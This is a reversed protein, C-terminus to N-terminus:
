GISYALNFIPLYIMWVLMGIILGVVILLVPQFFSAVILIFRRLEEQFIETAKNLVDSLEGTQEGVKILAVLNDQKHFNPISAISDSLSWGKDINELVLNLREKLYFNNVSDKACVVSNRLSVGSKLLLTLAQIFYTINSLEVLNKIYPISLLIRDKIKKARIKGIVFFAGVGVFCILILLWMAYVSRLFCSVAIIRRTVAPVQRGLSSFFVQFQPVVVILIILVILVAFFITFMPVLAANILDKKLQRSKKLYLAIQAFIFGLNGTHQGVQIMQVIFTDFVENHAQLAESFNKGDQLSKKLDALVAQAKVGKTQREVIKIASLLDVGGDLLISIQEFFEIFDYRTLKNRLQFFRKDANKYSLLAIGSKLLRDNLDEYSEAGLLGKCKNGSSDVGEWWFKPVILRM